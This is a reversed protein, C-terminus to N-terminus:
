AEVAEATKVTAVKAEIMEMTPKVTVRRKKAEATIAADVEANGNAFDIEMLYAIADEKNM